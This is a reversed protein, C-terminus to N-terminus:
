ADVVAEAEIFRCAPFRVCRCFYRTSGDSHPLSRRLVSDGCNPCTERPMAGGGHDPAMAQTAPDAYVVPDQRPEIRQTVATQQPMSRKAVPIAQAAVQQQTWVVDTHSQIFRVCDRGQTVNRAMATKFRCDATFVVVSHLQALPVQLVEQLAKIHRWNQRLPNQFSSRHRYISQTWTPQKESGFIWGQLHKTELVFMGYPSVVVHDIQTTSGDGLRLTINHACHYRQPDLGRALWRRVKYEGLWGKFRASRVLGSVLGCAIALGLWLWVMGLLPQLVTAM